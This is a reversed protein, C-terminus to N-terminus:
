AWEETSAPAPADVGEWFSGGNYVSSIPSPEESYAVLLPSSESLNETV